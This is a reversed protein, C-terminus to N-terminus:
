ESLVDGKVANTLLGFLRVKLRRSHLILLLKRFTGMRLGWSAGQIKIPGEEFEV